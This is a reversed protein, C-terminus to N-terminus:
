DRVAPICKIHLMLYLVCPTLAVAICWAAHASVRLATATNHNAPRRRALPVVRMRASWVWLLQLVREVEHVTKPKGDPGEHPLSAVDEWLLCTKHTVRSQIAPHRWLFPRVGMRALRLLTLAEQLGVQGHTVAKPVVSARNHLLPGVNSRLLAVLQTQAHTVLEYQINFGFDHCMTQFNKSKM